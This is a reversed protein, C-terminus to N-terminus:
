AGTTTARVAIGFLFLAALAFILSDQREHGRSSYAYAAPLTIVSVVGYLYHLADAPRNGLLLLILGVTSQVLAVGEALILAGLYGGSPNSGRLFLFFGWLAVLLSYILVVSAFGQHLSVAPGHHVVAAAIVNM